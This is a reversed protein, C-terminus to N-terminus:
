RSSVDIICGQEDYRVFLGAKSMGGGLEEIGIWKGKFVSPDVSVSLFNEKDRDRAQLRKFHGGDLSLLKNARRIELEAAYGKRRNELFKECKPFRDRSDQLEQQLRGTCHKPLRLEQYARLLIEQAQCLDQLLVLTQQHADLSKEAEKMDIEDWRIPSSLVHLVSRHKNEHDSLARERKGVTSVVQAVRLRQSQPIRNYDNQIGQDLADVVM